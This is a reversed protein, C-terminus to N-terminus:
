ELYPYEPDDSEPREEFQARDEPVFRNGANARIKLHIDTNTETGTDHYNKNKTAEKVDSVIDDVEQAQREQEEKFIQNKAAEVEQNVITLKKQLMVNVTKKEYDLKEQLRNLQTSRWQDLEIIYKQLWERYLEEHTAQVNQAYELLRNQEESTEHIIMGIVREAEVSLRNLREQIIENSEIHAVNLRSVLNTMESGPSITSTLDTTAKLIMQVNASNFVKSDTYDAKRISTRQAQPFNLKTIKISRRNIPM